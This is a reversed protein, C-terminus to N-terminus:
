RTLKNRWGGCDRDGAGQGVAEGADPREVRGGKDSRLEHASQRISNVWLVGGSRSSLLM